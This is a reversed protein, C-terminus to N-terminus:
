PQHGRQMTADSAALTAINLAVEIEMRIELPMVLLLNGSSVAQGIDWAKIKRIIECLRETESRNSAIAAAQGNVVGELAAIEARMEQVVAEHDDHRVYAGNAQENICPASINAAFERGLDFRAIM